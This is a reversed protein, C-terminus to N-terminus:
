STSLGLRAFFATPPPLEAVAWWPAHTELEALSYGGTAVAVVRAGIAQGCTIDHPTDGVVVPAIPDTGLLEHARALAARAIGPRDPADDSFAGGDGFYGAVGYHALKAAAGAATNGTLLFSRVDLRARAADLIERVGPLVRGTRRPLAGPLFAEYRAVLEAADAGDSGVHALLARGIAHDTWGATPYDSLDCARGTVARVAEEWAHIGARNTTLLTGDIDWFLATIM